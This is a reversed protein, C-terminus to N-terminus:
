VLGKAEIQATKGSRSIPVDWRTLYGFLAGMSYDSTAIIVIEVDTYLTLLRHAESEFGPPIQVEFNLLRAGPRRVMSINGFTDTNSSSYSINGGTLDWKTKGITRSKGVFCTGIAATGGPNNATITLQSTAYPPIGDVVLDTARVLPEYWYDYWNLVNHTQLNVTKTYGSISQAIDVTVADINLMTLTNILGTALVVTIAEPQTTQTNVVKDFMTFRNTKGLSLWKSEDTLANGSNAAVLSEYLEHVNSAVNSVVDGIAYSTGGSYQAYVTGLVQWWTPSSAPTHGTNSAQLSKYVIQSTGTTVGRIDGAGYTTGANYTTVFAEPVTSSILVSDVVDVIPVLRFDSSM